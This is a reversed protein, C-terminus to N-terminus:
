SARLGSSGIAFPSLVSPSSDARGLRPEPRPRPRARPRPPRRPPRPTRATLKLSYVAKLVSSVRVFLRSVLVIGSFFAFFCGEIAWGVDWTLDFWERICRILCQCSSFAFFGLACGALGISLGPSRTLTSRRFITNGGLGLDHNGVKRVVQPLVLCTGGPSRALTSM